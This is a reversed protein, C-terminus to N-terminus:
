KSWINGTSKFPTGFLPLINSFDAEGVSLIMLGVFSVLFLPLAIDACRGFSKLNKTCIFGSLFFFPAFAFLYPATDFFASYVFREINLIPMLMFFIFYLSYLIYVIRATLIGFTDSLMDFFSKDTRSALFLIVALIAAQLLYHTLAPILLDGKAFFALAAPASLFKSVPILFAAFFCLQRGNIAPKDQQIAHIAPM